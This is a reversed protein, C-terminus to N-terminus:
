GHETTNIVTYLLHTIRSKFHTINFALGQIKRFFHLYIHGQALNAITGHLSLLTIFTYNWVKKVEASSPPSHEAKHKM